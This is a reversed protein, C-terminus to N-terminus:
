KVEVVKEATHPWGKRYEFEGFVLLLKASSPVDSVVRYRQTVGPEMFTFDFDEDASLINKLSVLKNPFNLRVEDPLKEIVDGENFSRVRLKLWPLKVRVKGCNKLTLTYEAIVPGSEPKIIRADVDFEIQRAFQRQALFWILAGIAAVFAGLTQTYALAPERNKVLWEWWDM